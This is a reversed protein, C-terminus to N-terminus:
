VGDWTLAPDDDRIVADPRQGFVPVDGDWRVSGDNHGRVSLRVTQVLVSGDPFDVVKDDDSPTMLAGISTELALALAFVEEATVRRRGKETSSVTQARWEQHKLARMRAAVLEQGHGKRAREARLNRALVDSYFAM